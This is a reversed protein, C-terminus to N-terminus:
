EERNTSNSRSDLLLITDLECFRSGLPLNWYGRFSLASCKLCTESPFDKCFCQEGLNSDPRADLAVVSKPKTTCPSCRLGGLVLTANELTELNRCLEPLLM